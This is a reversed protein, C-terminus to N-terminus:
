KSCQRSIGWVDRRAQHKQVEAQNRYYLAYARDVGLYGKCYEYVKQWERVFLEIPTSSPITEYIKAYMEAFEEKHIIIIDKATEYHPNDNSISRKSLPDTDALLIKDELFDALQEMRTMNDEFRKVFADTALFAENIQGQISRSNENLCWM